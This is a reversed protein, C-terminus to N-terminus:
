DQFITRAPLVAQPPVIGSEVKTVLGAAAEPSWVFRIIPFDSFVRAEQQLREVLGPLLSLAPTDYGVLCLILLYKRSVGTDSDLKSLWLLRWLWAALVDEQFYPKVPDSMLWVAALRPSLYDYQRRVGYPNIERDLYQDADPTEECIADRIAMQIPAFPDSKGSRRGQAPREGASTGKAAARAANYAAEVEGFDCRLVVSIAFRNAQTPRTTRQSPTTNEWQQVAQTSAKGGASTIAGAFKGHNMGLAERRVRLFNAFAYTNDM